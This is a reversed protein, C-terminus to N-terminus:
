IKPIDSMWHITLPHARFNIGMGGGTMPFVILFVANLARVTGDTPHIVVGDHSQIFPALDSM